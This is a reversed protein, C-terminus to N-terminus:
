LAQKQKVSLYQATLQSHMKENDLLLFGIGLRKLRKEVDHLHEWVIHRGLNRYIGETSHVDSSSFLPKAGGPNLMTVLVLHKKALIDIHSIFSDALVPDDLSTMFILLARRRIKMSIFTFLEAFDPSARRAQLSYLAERCTSFHSKGRKARMFRDINNSFALFGFLDGMRETTLGMILAATVYREMIPTMKRGDEDQNNESGMSRNSMRSADIITYIEQTREIQFVKTVPHLRKATAKWHIDEYSDGPIYERLQEFDRGKGIRRQNHGGIGRNQFLFGLEKKDRFLDPYVRIETDIPMNGQLTWFALPSSVALYCRDLQSKGREVARCPWKIFSFENKAPLAVLMDKEASIIEASFPLGIRIESLKGKDNGIRVSIDAQRGKSLRVIEPLEVSIGDLRGFALAADIVVMSIFIVAIGALFLAAYSSVAGTLAAVPALAIGTWLILRNTPLIM